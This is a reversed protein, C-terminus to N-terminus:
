LTWGDRYARSLLADAAPKDTKYSASDWAFETEARYSVNGLLVAETLGAAYGFHSATPSGTRIANIWEQHHGVSDAIWPVIKGASKGEQMFVNHSGYDAILRGDRGEFLVAASKKYEEAGEPMWGGHRWTLQVAPQSGRAAFSYDVQMRQPCENDGDHGKEGKAAVKTPAGLELAWFALDMYHCGFDGLQGGGFDWWYRWNFHFHSEDFPRHPAPGLWLDYHVHAPPKADAVRKGVRVGGNQWVHVREVPGIVGSRVLEVVRRYNAGSHIQNGMQTPVYREALLKRITRAEHVSHTLPKECYVARGQRIAAATPMAHMHDPTSVVVGDIDKLNAVDRCDFLRKADPFREGAKDLRQEDIDCLAVIRVNPDAAVGNLNEGGRGAVGIVALNVKDLASRSERAAVERSRALPAATAVGAALAARVFDRRSVIDDTFQKHRAINTM